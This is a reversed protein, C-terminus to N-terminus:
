PHSATAAQMKTDILSLVKEFDALTLGESVLASYFEVVYTGYLAIWTCSTFSIHSQPYCDFSAQNAGHSQVNWDLPKSRLQSSSLAYEFNTQAEDVSRFVYISQEAIVQNSGSPSFQIIACDVSCLDDYEDRFPLSSQWGSPFDESTLLLNAPRGTGDPFSGTTDTCGSLLILVLTM